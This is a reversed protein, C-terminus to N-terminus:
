VLLPMVSVVFGVQWDDNDEDKCSVLQNVIFNHGPLNESGSDDSGSPDVVHNSNVPVNSGFHAPSPTPAPISAPAPVQSTIVLEAAPKSKAVMAATKAVKKEKILNLQQLLIPSVEPKDKESKPGAGWSALTRAPRWKKTEEIEFEVGKFSVLVKGGKLLKIIKVRTWVKHIDVEFIRGIM